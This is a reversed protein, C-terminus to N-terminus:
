SGATTRVASSTPRPCSSTRTSCRTSTTARRAPPAAVAHHGAHGDARHHHSIGKHKAADPDTRVALWCYDADSSLSTWMKQGNIVYSTATACRVRRCRRSTPAPAPSPTASASTSTAPSSAAPPLVAKQEDTGFGHDDPRRQQAHADAGARRRADVRRLLHVARDGLSGPRRVGEALRHRGLRRRVDAELHARPAEGIGHSAALEAVTAPDLLKEYYARLESRMAEQEPTYGIEM